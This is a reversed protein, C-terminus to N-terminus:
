QSYNDLRLDVSIPNHDSIRAKQRCLIEITKPPGFIGDPEQVVTFNKGAFWDLRFSLLGNWPALKKNLWKRFWDPMYTRSKLTYPHENIDLVLTAKDSENYPGASFGYRALMGFLPKEFIEAPTMYQAVTEATGLFLAKYFFSFFASAKNKLNYTHTNLDGGFLQASAASGALSNMMSQAQLARQYPSSKLDLHAVAFDYRRKGIQIKCILGRRKGLRREFRLFHDRVPYLQPTQCSIIKHRTLIASGHLSLTNELDHSQEGEDGKSLVIFSNAYCYNMNLAAAIERPINHNGSRGMGIDTETLLLVDAQSLCADNQLLRIIEELNHGREVNWAVARIFQRPEPPAINSKWEIGNEIRRIEEGHKKYLASKQYQRRSKFARIEAFLPTLNHELKSEPEKLLYEM